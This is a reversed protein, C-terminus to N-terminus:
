RIMNPNHTHGYYDNNKYTYTPPSYTITGSGGSGGTITTALPASYIEDIAAKVADLCLKHERLEDELSIYLKDLRNVEEVKSTLRYTLDAITIAQADALKKYKNM